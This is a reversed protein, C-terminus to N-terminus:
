NSGNGNEKPAYSLVRQQFRELAQRDQIIDRAANLMSNVMYMADQLTVGATETRETYGRDKAQTKLFFCVAWAEGNLLAKQLASEANDKMAERVDVTAAKLNPHSQVFKWVAGRTVGFARGVAAMNGNMERLKAEVNEVTLGGKKM